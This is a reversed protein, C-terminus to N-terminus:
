ASSGLVNIQIQIQGTVMTGGGTLCQLAVEAEEGSTNQPAHDAKQDDETRIQNLGLALIDEIPADELDQVLNQGPSLVPSQASPLEQDVVLAVVLNQVRLVKLLQSPDLGHNRVSYLVNFISCNNSISLKM